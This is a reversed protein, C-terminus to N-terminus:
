SDFIGVDWPLDSDPDVKSAWKKLVAIAAKKAKPTPNHEKERLRSLISM